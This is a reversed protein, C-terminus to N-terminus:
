IESRLQGVTASSGNSIQSTKLTYTSRLKKLRTAPSHLCSRRYIARVNTAGTNYWGAIVKPPINTFAILCVIEHNRQPVYAYRLKPRLLHANARRGINHVHQWCINYDAAIERTPEGQAYRQIIEARDSQPLKRGQM